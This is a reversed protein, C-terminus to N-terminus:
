KTIFLPIRKNMRVETAEAFIKESKSFTYLPTETATSFLSTTTSAGNVRQPAFALAGGMSTAATLATIVGTTFKM